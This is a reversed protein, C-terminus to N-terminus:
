SSINRSSRSASYLPRCLRYCLGGVRRQNLRDRRTENQLIFECATQQQCYAGPLGAVPAQSYCDCRPHPNEEGQEPGRRHRLPCDHMGKCVSRRVVARRESRTPKMSGVQACMECVSAIPVAMPITHAIAAAILDVM